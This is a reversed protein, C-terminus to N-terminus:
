AFFNKDNYIYLCFFINKLKAKTKKRWNDTQFSDNGLEKTIRQSKGKIDIMNSKIKICQASKM